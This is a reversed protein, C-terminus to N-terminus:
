FCSIIKRCVTESNITLRALFIGKMLSRTNFTVQHEGAMEYGNLDMTEGPAKLATADDEVSIAIYDFSMWGWSDDIEITNMGQNLTIDTHYSMWTSTNPATFTIEGLSTGNVILIQGKPSEYNLLYRITLPYVGTETVEVHDFTLVWDNSAFDRYKGGSAQSSTKVSSTGTASADEAEYIVLKLNSVSFDLPASAVAYGQNDTVIGTITYTGTEAPTTWSTEYPADTLTALLVGDIFFEVKTISGDKPPEADAILTIETGPPAAGGADTRISITPKPDVPQENLSVVSAGFVEWSLVAFQGREITTATTNFYSIKFGPHTVNIKFPAAPLEENNYLNSTAPNYEWAYRVMSPDPVADNWVIVTDGSIIADAWSLTGTGDALVFGKVAIDADGTVLGSGTHDFLIKVKGGDTLTHSKYRPGSYVLDQGYVLHRAILALRDGVPKKNTPHIDVDGVDITVAEGTNPLSLARSQNARLQPWADWPQPTEFVEGYNPLQVWIFPLDGMGWSERWSNIMTKFLSGYELADEMTDANSEGQYWIFGKVPFGTLPHLMTNYAVTPQREYYTGGALVIDTEDYGLMEESMWAEIRSGGYSTNIIGIPVGIETRLAKAFYYGAATFNGVYASTAPRWESGSPLAEAPEEGLTKPVKFQRLMQDNSGSIEAAGGDSQSLTMEMNSQGSALWVDGIYVDSYTLTQGNSVVVMQFPGGPQMSPLEVKWDGDPDATTSRISDNVTVVVEAGAVAKGWVPLAVERQLVMGNSFIKSPILQASLTLSFVFLLLGSLVASMYNKM